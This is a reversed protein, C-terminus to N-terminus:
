KFYYYCGDDLKFIYFGNQVVTCSHRLFHEILCKTKNKLYIIPLDYFVNEFYQIKYFM